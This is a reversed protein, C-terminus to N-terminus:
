KGIAADDWGGGLAKYLSVLNAAVNSDSQALADESGLLARQADLVNLFTTFGQTYLRTAIDVARRNLNVVNALAERHTQEKSYAVLAVEVDHLATLVAREYLTAAQEQAANQVEVQSRIRGADFIPWSVSPGVSWFRDNWTSLSSSKAGQLGLSGTLSFRPFLDATAVGIRATASHLQAEARRIDPRRRLLDSPLGIPIAPPTTPIPAASTLQEVLAGPQQGLLLSLAYISQQALSELAPIQSATTAVQADATAADLAAALGAEIRKHTVSASHQQLDLNQKATRIQRQYGRLQIYDIAVESLLTVEVDHRDEVAAQVDANAAEIGRRIGGFVDLEWAADFGARFADREGNATGSRSYSGGVNASPFLGPTVTGTVARAQRIRSTALKLDLSSQVAGYILTNLTPDNFTRWWEVVQMPSLNAASPQTAAAGGVGVWGGPMNPRPEKFDPGVACGAVSLGIVAALTKRACSWIM